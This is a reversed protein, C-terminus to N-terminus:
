FTLPESFRRFLYDLNIIHARYMHTLCISLTRVTSVTNSKGSIWIWCVDLSKRSVKAVVPPIQDDRRATKTSVARLIADSAPMGGGVGFFDGGGGYFFM